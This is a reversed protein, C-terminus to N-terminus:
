NKRLVNLVTNKIDQMGKITPHGCSKDIIDFLIETIGYIQCAKRMGASIEPKLETNILCYIDAKPLKDKLIKLFYCIAPLVSYLDDKEWNEYKMTGLPADAWSDNTGGFVFVTDINNKDFFGQAILTHLRYIFSSSKSCDTNNYGTYCITSGSWSNNLILNLNAETIVQHWWTQGVKTVDTEPRGKEFYYVGYGDPVFKEFTSYSDGIIITNNTLEIMEMRLNEVLFM